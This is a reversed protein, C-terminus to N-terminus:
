ALRGELEVLREAMPLMVQKIMTLMMTAPTMGTAPMTAQIAAAPLTASTDASVVAMTDSASAADELAAYVIEAAVTQDSGHAIFDDADAASLKGLAQAVIEVTADHDDGLALASAAVIKSATVLLTSHHAPIRHDDFLGKHSHASWVWCCGVWRM